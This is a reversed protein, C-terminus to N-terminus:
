VLAIDFQEQHILPDATVTVNGGLYAEVEELLKSYKERLARAVEPHVRLIAEKGDEVERALAMRKAEDLIELCVTQPSKVLGSGHCYPCPECLTRELSQKVRKRTIAVLGFDNFQLIKTPARDKRLEEELVQMVKQRNKREEMDIFDLVIIGGLDRLRIQRAIERAAEINTRTITDEFRNTKGVFKGTNVDIAVLAETQNIVIYGGSKLWVRPRIAKEIEAQIGYDEFIPTPRTHLKVRNLLKPQVRSVFNVIRAYDDEDDVRIATFDDSLRDRLIREVLDLERHILQPARAREARTRIDVWTRYLYLLDDLLESEGCGEAATRVIVGGAIKQRARLETVLRRLRAREAASTIRRSVGVHEFTPLYVLYRGPLTIHTTVRAGKTGIPEKAIQVLIEQGEELLETITPKAEGREESASSEVASPRGTRRRRVRRRAALPARLRPSRVSAEGEPLPPDDSESSASDEAASPVSSADPSAAEPEAGEGPSPEACSASSEEVPPHDSDLRDDVIRQRRSSAGLHAHFSGVRPAQESSPSPEEAEAREQPALEVREEEAHLAETIKEDFIAEKLDVEPVSPSEEVAEASPGEAGWSEGFTPLERERPSPEAKHPERAREPEAAPPEALAELIEEVEDGAVPERRASPAPAPEAVSEFEIDLDEMEIVDSVYLFADRELGIDVFASQMGPLVRTVRGKYINGVIGQSEGVREVYYETLVGDELIAIKREFNNSSIIMEKAM